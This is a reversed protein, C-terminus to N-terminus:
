FHLFVFILCFFFFFFFFFDSFIQTSPLESGRQMETGQHCSAWSRDVFQDYHLTYTAPPPVDTEIKTVLPHNSYALTFLDVEGEGDCKNATALERRTSDSQRAEAAALALLFVIAIQFM